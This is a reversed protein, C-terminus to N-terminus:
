TYPFFKKYFDNEVNRKEGEAQKTGDKGVDRKALAKLERTTIDNLEGITPILALLEDKNPHADERARYFVVAMRLGILDCINM